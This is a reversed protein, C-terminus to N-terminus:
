AFIEMIALVQECPIYRFARLYQREWSVDGDTTLTNRLVNKDDERFVGSQKNVISYIYHGPSLSEGTFRFFNRGPKAQMTESYVLNGLNNFVSLNV